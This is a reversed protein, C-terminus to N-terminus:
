LMTTHMCAILSIRPRREGAPLLASAGIKNRLFTLGDVSRAMLVPYDYVRFYNDEIRINRHVAYGPVLEPNEPVIAIAYNDPTSNYGCEEFRNGRILVDRVPGSEYWGKADDAILIAQMGTRYFVNDEIVVKGRTTVLLGRTNTGEFRCNRVLLSPEWSINELCDGQRLAASDVM